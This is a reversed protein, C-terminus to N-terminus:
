ITPVPESAIYAQLGSHVSKASVFKKIIRRRQDRWRQWENIPRVPPPIFPQSAVPVVYVDTFVKNEGRIVVFEQAIKTVKALVPFGYRRPSYFVQDGLTVANGHQDTVTM